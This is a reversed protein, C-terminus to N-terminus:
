DDKFVKALKQAAKKWSFKKLQDKAKQKLETRLAKNEIIRMMQEAFSKASGSEAFLAGGDGVERLPPIDSCIVNCGADFAQLVPLGFGEERSPFVLATASHFLASAEEDSIYGPAVITGRLDDKEMRHFLDSFGHGYMGGLFLRGTSYMKQVLAWADLLALLNKKTELRGLFFFLPENKPIQYHELTEEITRQNVKPLPVAGHPVVLIKTDDANYYKKLDRKVSETPVIVKNAVRLARRTTWELYFSQFAGYALPYKEFAVDHITIFSRKPTFFPFVHAPVFLVDPKHLLMELSLRFVTWLRPCWLVRQLKKPFHPILKPTYLRLEEDKLEKLLADIILTSYAEVGTPQERTSRSADIGITLKKKM